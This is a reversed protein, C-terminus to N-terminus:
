LLHLLDKLCDVDDGFGALKCDNGGLLSGLSGVEERRRRRHRRCHNDVVVALQELSALPYVV